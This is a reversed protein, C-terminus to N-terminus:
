AGKLIIEYETPRYKSETDPMSDLQKIRSFVMNLQTYEGQEERNGDITAILIYM